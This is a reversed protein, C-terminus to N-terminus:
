LKMLATASVIYAELTERAAPSPQATQAMSVGHAGEERAIWCAYAPANWAGAALKWRRSTLVGEFLDYHSRTNGALADISEAPDFADRVPTHATNRQAVGADYSGDDRIIWSYIGLRCGSEHMCQGYALGSPLGHAGRAQLCLISTLKAQTAGGAVGDVALKYRLQAGRVARYTKDGFEGDPIGADIGVERLAMQLAYVDEGSTGVVLSRNRPYTPTSEFM